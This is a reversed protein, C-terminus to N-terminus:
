MFFCIWSSSQSFSQEGFYHLRIAVISTIASIFNVRQFIFLLCDLVKNHDELIVNCGGEVRGPREGRSWWENAESTVGRYCQFSWDRFLLLEIRRGAQGVTFTRVYLEVM